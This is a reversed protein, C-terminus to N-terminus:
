REPSRRAALIAGDLRDELEWERAWARVRAEDEPTRGARILRDIDALDQPRGAILKYVLLDDPAVVRSPVGLVALPRSRSLAEHEFATGACLLDVLVPAANERELRLRVSGGEVARSLEGRAVVLDVARLARELAGTDRPLAIAVDCDKTGRPETWAGVALGGVIMWPVGADDLVRGLDRLLREFTEGLEAITFKM